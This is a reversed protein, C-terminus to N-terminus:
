EITQGRDESSWPLVLGALFAGGWGLHMVGLALPIGVILAADRRRAAEWFGTVVLALVYGGWQVALLWRPVALFPSAVLLGLTIAVFMPPLAQRWRLTDPHARLMRTKWFGYRLYQRALELLSPRAFYTSRIAPDFWIRGGAKLLRANLEYDENTLLRENYLGVRELWEARYAGFPVTEVWGPNGHIRYRADGAGLPHGAAVAISRAIWGKGGPEIEWVGGVNAAGTRDLADLCQQVYDAQPVSHADLRVITEGEAARIGLNLASPITRKPNDIVDLRLQPHDSAYEALTERTGDTSGGDMVVIQMQNTPCSQRRLADLLGVITGAENYCPIIVSVTPTLPV